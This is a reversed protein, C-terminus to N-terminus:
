AYRSLSTFELFAHHFFKLQIIAVVVCLTPVLLSFFLESVDYKEFGIDNWRIFPATLNCRPKVM